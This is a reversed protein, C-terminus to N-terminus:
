SVARLREIIGNVSDDQNTLKLFIDELSAGIQDAKKSLEQITGVAIIKGHNIIAIRDCLEQAVQMIHTSFLIAGGEKTHLELIEKFVRVSKADLGTLPEDLILLRPEHLLAAIIQVKQKNGRSLTAIPKDYYQRFNFSDILERLRPTETNEIGRISGIFNFLEQPTLSEYILPEESIYGVENKVKLDEKIPNYEFVNIEGDNPELLGLIMKVTTTKGAGNPGLLGYFEGKKIALSCNDVAVLPGFKKTVNHLRIVEQM